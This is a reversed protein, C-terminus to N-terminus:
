FQLKTQEALARQRESFLSYANAAAMSRERQPTLQIGPDPRNWEWYSSLVLALLTLRLITAIIRRRGRLERGAKRLAFDNHSKKNM